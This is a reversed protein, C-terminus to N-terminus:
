SKDGIKVTTSSGELKLDLLHARRWQMTVTLCMWQSRALGHDEYYSMWPGEAPRFDLVDGRVFVHFAKGM